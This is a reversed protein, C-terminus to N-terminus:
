AETDRFPRPVNSTWAELEMASVLAGIGSLPPCQEAKRVIFRYNAHNDRLPRKEELLTRRGNPQCTHTSSAFIVGQLEKSLAEQIGLTPRDFPMDQCAKNGDSNWCEVVEGQQVLRAHGLQGLPNCSYEEFM